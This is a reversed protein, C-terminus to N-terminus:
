QPPNAQSQAQSAGQENRLKSQDNLHIKQKLNLLSSDQPYINLAKDLAKDRNFTDGKFNYAIVLDRYTTVAPIVEISKSAWHIYDNAPDLNNESIGIYM